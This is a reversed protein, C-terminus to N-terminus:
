TANSDESKSIQLYVDTVYLSKAHLQNEKLYRSFDLGGLTIDGATVDFWDENKPHKYAFEMKLINPM